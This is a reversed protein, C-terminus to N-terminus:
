EQFIASPSSGIRGTRWAGRLLRALVRIPTHMPTHIVACRLARPAQVNRRLLMHQQSFV